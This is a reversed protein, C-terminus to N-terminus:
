CVSVKLQELTQSLSKVDEVNCARVDGSIKKVMGCLSKGPGAEIFTDYGDTIMNEITKSWQVPSVIQKAVLEAANGNYPQATLNSYLPLDGKRFNYKSLTDSFEPVAPQM